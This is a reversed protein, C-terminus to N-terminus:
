IILGKVVFNRTVKHFGLSSKTVHLCLWTVPTMHFYIHNVRTTVYVIVGSLEVGKIRVFAYAM